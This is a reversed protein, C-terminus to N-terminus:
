GNQPLGSRFIFYVTGVRCLAARLFDLKLPKKSLKKILVQKGHFATYSVTDERDVIDQWFTV